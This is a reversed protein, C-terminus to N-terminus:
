SVIRPPAKQSVVLSQRIFDYVKMKNKSTPQKSRYLWGKVTQETIGLEHALEAVGLGRVERALKLLRGNEWNRQIWADSFADWYGLIREEEKLLALIAQATLEYGFLRSAPNMRSLPLLELADKGNLICFERVACIRECEQQAWQAFM